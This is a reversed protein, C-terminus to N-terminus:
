AWETPEGEETEVSNSIEEKSKRLPLDQM